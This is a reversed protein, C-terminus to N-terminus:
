QLAIKIHALHHNGHWAYIGINKAVSVEGSDPHMFTRQLQEETLTELLYVWREHLGELMKISSTIPLKSDPLEAWREEYYTKIAPNSETLALKLRIYANLHSDALHHVVQRITWSGERYNKELDEESLKNVLEALRMPLLKLETLWEKIEGATITEGSSFKGIPYRKDMIQVEM